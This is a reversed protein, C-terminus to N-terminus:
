AKGATVAAMTDAFTELLQDAHAKQFCLLPRIKLSNENPGTTSILVKRERLGSVVKTTLEADPAKTEPNTVFEVAFYLGAGRVDGMSPYQKAITKFGDLLYNGMEHCNQQLNEDRIVNLVAQAASICVANGGFTNFYRVKPGFDELLEPKVAVGAIPLGNGMPKGMVVIDPQIGHRQYGWFNLGTRAFGPQVEDAIFVGGHKHVVDIAKKLFGCPDPLLGDTSFISDAIFGAFKIGHRQMDAIAAEIDAALREGLDVGPEAHYAYPARVTRVHQDVPVYKGMTTSIAAVATTIGHYAYDTVIIGTGGTYFKSIRLALDVAESGTCTYMVSGIGGGFTEVLQETYSLIKEDMYRTHTNLTALQQSVAEVVRPHCHGVSPVNNYCDLYQEGNPGYMYVGEARVFEVPHQYMLKYSPGLLRQRRQVVAQEHANLTPLLALDFGNQMGATSSFQESM